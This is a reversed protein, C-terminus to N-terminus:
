ATMTDFLSCETNGSQKACYKQLGRSIYLAEYTTAKRGLLTSQTSIGANLMVKKLGLSAPLDNGYTKEGCKGDYSIIFDIGRKNLSDLAIIFEDRSIGSLYRSDRQGSTGQYPPDMYVVDGKRARDLLQRYDESYFEARGKLCASVAATNAAIKQPSTGNRRKDPSQNFKGTSSYRVSGKVCRALLYLMNAPSTDGHNFDDRQKYFHAISGGAYTFQEEWVTRYREALEHPNEVAMRLLGMLPANIDNIIYKKARQRVAAAMTVAAMGGFPEILREFRLPMYQLIQPALIRKSGQYQAIHPVKIAM